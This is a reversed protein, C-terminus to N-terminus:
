LVKQTVFKIADMINVILTSVDRVPKYYVKRSMFGFFFFLLLLAQCFLAALNNTWKEGDMHKSLDWGFGSPSMIGLISRSWRTPFGHKTSIRGVANSAAYLQQMDLVYEIRNYTWLFCFPGIVQNHM